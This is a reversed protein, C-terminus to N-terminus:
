MVYTLSYGTIIGKRLPDFDRFFERIRINKYKVAARLREEVSAGALLLGNNDSDSLKQQQQQPEIITVQRTFYYNNYLLYAPRCPLDIILM